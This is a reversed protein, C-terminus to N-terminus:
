QKCSRHHEVVHSEVRDIVIKPTASEQSRSAELSSRTRLFEKLPLIPAHPVEGENVRLHRRGVRVLRGERALRDLCRIIAIKAQDRDRQCRPRCLKALTNVARRFPIVVGPQGIFFRMIAEDWGSPHETPHALGWEFDRQTEQMRRLFLDPPEILVELM